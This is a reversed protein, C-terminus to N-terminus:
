GGLAAGAPGAACHIDRRRTLDEIVAWKFGDEGHQTMMRDRYERLDVVEVGLWARRFVRPLRDGPAHIHHLGGSYALLLRGRPKVRIVDAIGGRVTMPNGRSDLGDRRKMRGEPCFALVADPDRIQELVQDWTDDAERSVVAVESAIFRFIRGVVPREMTKDAIPIVGRAAVRWLFSAPVAGLLIPEFLTTHNLLAAIRVDSWTRPSGPLWELQVRYLCRSTLKVAMLVTFVLLARM